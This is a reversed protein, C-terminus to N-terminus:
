NRSLGLLDAIALLVFRPNHFLYRKWLRQPEVFFRFLWELGASQIWAPAQLLTGAHFDFAAGVGLMVADIKGRHEAMWIEQKPCGLGVFLIRVGSEKIKQVVEADEESTLHRFAPSMSFVVNLGAYRAQMRQTLLELVQPTSGYFGVPIKERAAAELLHLTLTPGYVRQQDRRGKVRMLWVLPMGDPVVLDANNVIRKFEPSDYAEMLMHVNAVCVYRSEFKRVSDLIQEAAIDYTISDIKADLIRLMLIESLFHRSILKKL